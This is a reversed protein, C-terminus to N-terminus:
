TSAEFDPLATPLMTYINIPLFNLWIRKRDTKALDLHRFVPELAKVREQREPLLKSLRRLGIYEYYTMVANPASIERIKAFISKVTEKDFNLFPLACVVVDFKLNSDIDQAAGLFFTVRSRHRQYDENDELVEKLVKMFKPNLECIFLTDDDRMDKLIRVTVSGTGPGLELINRSSKTAVARLPSTLEKAAWKSTPFISGTDRFSTIAGSVFEFTEKVTNM